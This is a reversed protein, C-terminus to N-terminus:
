LKKKGELDQALLYPVEWIEIEGTIIKRNYSELGSTPDPWKKEHVPDRKYILKYMHRVYPRHEALPDTPPPPPPPPSGGQFLESVRKLYAPLKSGPWIHDAQMLWDAHLNAADYFGEWHSYMKIQDDLSLNYGAANRYWGITEPRTIFYMNESNFIPMGNAQRILRERNPPKKWDRGANKRVPHILLSDFTRKNRGVEYEVSDRGGHDVMLLNEPKDFYDQDVRREAWMNIGKAGGITLRDTGFPTKRHHSADWENCAHMIVNAKPYKEQLEEALYLSTAIAHDIHGNGIGDTHKLTAIIGLMFSCGLRESEKFFWEMTDKYVKTLHKPKIRLVKEERYDWLNNKIFEVDWMGPDRPPSGFMGNGAEVNGWGGTELWTYFLVERGLWEQVFDVFDKARAYEKRAVRAALKGSLVGLLLEQRKNNLFFKNKRITIM